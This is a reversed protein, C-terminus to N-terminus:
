VAHARRILRRMGPMQGLCLLVPFAFAIALEAPTALRVIRLTAGLPSLLSLASPVASLLGLAWPVILVAGLLTYQLFFTHARRARGWCDIRLGIVAFTFACLSTYAILLATASGRGPLLARAFVLLPLVVLQAFLVHAALTGLTHWRLRNWRSAAMGRHVGLLSAFAVYAMHFLVPSPTWQRVILDSVRSGAPVSLLLAGGCIVLLLVLGQVSSASFVSEPRRV